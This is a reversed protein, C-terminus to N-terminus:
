RPPPVSVEGGTTKLAYRYSGNKEPIFPIGKPLNLGHNLFYHIDLLQGLAKRSDNLPLDMNFCRNLHQDLLRELASEEHDLWCHFQISDGLDIRDVVDYYRGNWKFEADHEWRVMQNLRAKSFTLVTLQDPHTRAIKVKVKERLQAKRLFLGTPALAFPLAIVLLFGLALLSRM